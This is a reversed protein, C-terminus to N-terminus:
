DLVVARVTRQLGGQTLRVLYVGAALKREAALDVVHHGVGLSGVNRVAIRRGKVNVLELQAPAAVPLVFSVAMRAATTPNPRVGELAFAFVGGEGVDVTGEPGLAAFPSENGNVDVASLKYYSGAPGVDVYGTDSRTAILNGPGPVFDAASGRYVRYYWFDPESSPGWHLNTAGGEYAATFQTPPAPSLNDM